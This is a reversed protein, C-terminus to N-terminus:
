EIEDCFQFRFERATAMKMKKMGREVAADLNLGM